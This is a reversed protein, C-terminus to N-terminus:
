AKAEKKRLPCEKLHERYQEWAGKKDAMIDGHWGCKCRTSFWYTMPSFRKRKPKSNNEGARLSNTGNEKNKTEM